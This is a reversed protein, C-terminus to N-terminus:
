KREIHDGRDVVIKYGINEMQKYLFRLNQASEGAVSLKNDYIAYNERVHSPSLNPMCVNAGALIGLERGNKNISSLATTSPILAKPLLLRIISILILTLEASGAKENGFPTDAQPIFPGIGIMEPSFDKIFKLDKAIHKTTQGPSGVM